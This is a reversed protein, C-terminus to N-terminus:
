PDWYFRASSGSCNWDEFLTVAGIEHPDYPGLIVSSAHNNLYNIVYNFVHGAGSNVRASGTCNSGIGDSCLDYWVNKGCVYSSVINDWGM